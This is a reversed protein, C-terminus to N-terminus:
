SVYQRPRALFLELNTESDFLFVRDAYSASYEVKGKMVRNKTKLEVIDVQGFKSWRRLPKGGDDIGVSM